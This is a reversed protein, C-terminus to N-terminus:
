FLVRGIPTENGDEDILYVTDDISEVKPYFAKLAEPVRWSSGIVAAFEDPRHYPDSIAYTSPIPHISTYGVEAASDLLSKVEAAGPSTVTGAESDWTVSLPEREGTYPQLELTFKM